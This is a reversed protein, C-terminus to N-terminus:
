PPARLLLPPGYISGRSAGSSSLATLLPAAFMRTFLSTSGVKEVLSFGYKLSLSVTGASSCVSYRGGVWDWFQFFREERVGFELVKDRASESACAVVHTATVSADPNGGSMRDWLWQRMTRANLMTESTTFTKSVIVVLTEEADLNSISREVDVPDVNSLFRLTFGQSTFIGERETALVESIYSPGLYSGGIGVSIINRIKRGTHGRIKGNRVAETYEKIRDLQQHVLKVADM